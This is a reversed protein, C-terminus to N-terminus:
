HGAVDCGGPLEGQLGQQMVAALSRYGLENFHGPDNPGHLYGETASIERLRARTDMFKVGAHAAADRIAGCAKDSNRLIDAVDKRMLKGRLQKGNEFRRDSVEVTQSVFRYANVPSPIYVTWIEAEPFLKRLSGLSAEFLNAVANMERATNFTIPEQTRDPYTGTEGGVTIIADSEEYRGWDERYTDRSTYSRIWRDDPAFVPIDREGLNKFVLKGLKTATDILHANRLWYWRRVAADEGAAVRGTVAKEVYAASEMQEVTSGSLEDAFDNGEYFYVLVRKPPTIDIGTFVTMGLYDKTVQYPLVYSPHGGRYGFTLVDDGTLEHLVHGANYVPNGDNVRQMFWDGLGEAYSDGAILTYNEPIEDAKGVQALPALRGLQEHLIVPFSMLSNRWVIEVPVYFVAFAALALAINVLWSKLM